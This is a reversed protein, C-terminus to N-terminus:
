PYIVDLAVYRPRFVAFRQVTREKIIEQYIMPEYKYFAECLIVNEGDRVVIDGPLNAVGGQNGFDSSNSGGGYFRQWKIRPPGGSAAVSTVILRGESSLDFPEMVFKAAKFLSKIGDETMATSQSVLDALSASTREVKQNVLVFRVFEIGTLLLIVLVPMAFALEIALNGGRDGVIRRLLRNMTQILMM